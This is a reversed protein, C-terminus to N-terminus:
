EAGRGSIVAFPTLLLIKLDLILSSHEVYYIDMRVAEDFPVSSRGRVQWWGTLGPIARLRAKHWLQYEKVEYPLAPRPGVLSMDGKLVNFLQPLEDLSTRRLIHGFRTIRADQTLKFVTSDTLNSCTGDVQNRILLEMYRRHVEPDAKHYMTRFKFCIFPRASLDQKRRDHRSRRESQTTPLSSQRNRRDSQRRNQGVRTQRFFVPGQSDLRVGVAIVLFVPALLILLLAALVIDILRKVLLYFHRNPIISIGLAPAHITEQTAM